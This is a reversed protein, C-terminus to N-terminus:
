EYRELVFRLADSGVERDKGVAVQGPRAFQSHYLHDAFVVAVKPDTAPHVELACHLPFVKLQEALQTAIAIAQRSMDGADTLVQSIPLEFSYTRMVDKDAEEKTVSKLGSGKPMQGMDSLVPPMESGQMAIRAARPRVRKSWSDKDLGDHPHGAVGSAGAAGKFSYVVRDFKEPETTSFTLLLIFFTMLLTIVDSYTMFWAPIDSKPEEPTDASM